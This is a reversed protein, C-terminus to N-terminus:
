VGLARYLTFRRNRPLRRQNRNSPTCLRVHGLRTGLRSPARSVHWGAKLPGRGTKRSKFKCPDEEEVYKEVPDTAIDIMEVQRKKLQAASIDLAQLSCGPEASRFADVDLAINEGRSQSNRTIGTCSHARGKMDVQDLGAAIRLTQV